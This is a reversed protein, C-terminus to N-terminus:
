KSKSKKSHAHASEHSEAKPPAPPAPAPTAKKPRAIRTIVGNEILAVESFETGHSAEKFTQTAKVADFSAHLATVVGDVEAVVIRARAIM